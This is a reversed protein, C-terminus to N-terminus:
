DRMVGADRIADKIVNVDDKFNNPRTDGKFVARCGKAGGQAPGVRSIDLVDVIMTGGEDPHLELFAPTM